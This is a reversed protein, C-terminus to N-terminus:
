KGFLDIGIHVLTSLSPQMFIGIVHSKGCLGYGDLVRLTFRAITRQLCSFKGQSIQETDRLHSLKGCPLSVASYFDAYPM